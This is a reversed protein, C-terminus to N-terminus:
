KGQNSNWPSIKIGFTAGGIGEDNVVENNEIVADVTDVDCYIGANQEKDWGYVPERFFSQGINTM